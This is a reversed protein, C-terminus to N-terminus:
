LEEHDTDQTTMASTFELYETVSGDTDDLDDHAIFIEVVEYDWLGPTPTAGDAQGVPPPDDWFPADIIVRMRGGGSDGHVKSLSAREDSDALTVSDSTRAQDFHDSGPEFLPSLLKKSQASGERTLMVWAPQQEVAGAAPTQVIPIGDWYSQIALVVLEPNRLFEAPPSQLANADPTSALQKTLIIQQKLFAALMPAYHPLKEYGPFYNIDIIYYDDENQLDRILDFNFMKLGLRTRLSRSVETVLAESVKAVTSTSAIVNQSLRPVNCLRVSGAEADAGRANNRTHGLCVEGRDRLSDELHVDPLSQRVDVMTDEGLVYVKYLIGGHNIFEQVILPPQLAALEDYNRVIFMDHATAKGGACLPKVIFPLRLANTEVLEQIQKRQSCEPIHIQRPAQVAAESITLGVCCNLMTQRDEIQRVAEPHDLIVVHPQRAGYAKIQELIAPSSPVKHLIADFPGQKDLATSFDIQKLEIGSERCARVVDETLLNKVKKAQFAYGVTYVACNEM